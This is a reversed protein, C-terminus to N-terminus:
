FEAPDLQLRFPPRMLRYLLDIEEPYVSNPAFMDWHMPVLTRAGIEEAMAFAERVSMNGVIGRRERFYNRENVPLLALDIPGLARLREILEGDPSTDGAHYIRRGEVDLVYGVCSWFGAEDKEIEPHCAPVPRVRLGPALDLWADSALSLREPAVGRERLADLVSPPGLFRCRPSAGAIPLLTHPDCHDLHPHSILVWDADCVDGPALPAERLRRMEPGEQEAVYDSLYPDFYVVSTGLRFRFGSQGLPTVSVQM